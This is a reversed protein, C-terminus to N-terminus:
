LTGLSIPRIDLSLFRILSRVLFLRSFGINTATRSDPLWSLRKLLCVICNWVRLLRPGILLSNYVWYIASLPLRSNLVLQVFQLAYHGLFNGIVKYATPNHTGFPYKLDFIGGKTSNILELSPKNCLTKALDIANVKSFDIWWGKLQITESDHEQNHSHFVKLNV